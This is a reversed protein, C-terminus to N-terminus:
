QLSQQLKCLSTLIAILDSSHDYVKSGDPKLSKHKRHIAEGQSTVHM